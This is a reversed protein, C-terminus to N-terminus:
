NTGDESLTEELSTNLDTGELSTRLGEILFNPIKEGCAKKNKIETIMDLADAKNPFDASESVKKYFDDWGSAPKATAIAQTKTRAEICANYEDVIQNLDKKNLDGNSIKQSVESCDDLFESTLKRFSINAVELRSGDKKVLFLGDYKTQNEAQFGYLTLYGSKIVKMFAYQNGRKVPEYIASGSQAQRVKLMPIFQKDGNAVLKVKKDPGYNFIQTEGSLTDGSTTIVFDQAGACQYALMLLLFLLIHLVTYSKM